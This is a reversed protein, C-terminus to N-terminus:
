SKFERIYDEGWIELQHIIEFLKYGTETLEYEVR